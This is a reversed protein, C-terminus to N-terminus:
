SSQRKAHEALWMLQLMGFRADELPHHKGSQQEPMVPYGLREWEQAIDNTRQPIGPPLDIMQGWVQALTVHDYAAYWAWLSLSPTDMLFRLLQRRLTQHDVVRAYDENNTDWSLAGHDHRTVPLYPAVNRMLWPHRSIKHLPASQCILYIQRGDEAVMGVSIPDITVGDEYFEWDYIVKM